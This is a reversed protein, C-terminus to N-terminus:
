KVIVKTNEVSGNAYKVQAVYVGAALSSVNISSSTSKAVVKGTMDALVVGTIQNKASFNVVSTAPNPYVQLNSKAVVDSVALSGQFKMIGTSGGPGDSFQGCWGTTGNLFEVKGRQEGADIEIWNLGGDTSYSSGMPAASNIGTSVYTNPTGPVYAIDGYYWPGNPTIDTWSEGGNTTEYLVAFGNDNTILLGNTASSFAFSASSGETIVGGFDMAPSIHATWTNGRDTSRLIRGTSTGLWINDGHVEKVGVYTFEDGNQPAPATSIVTWTNGGDTTKYMEFKNAVPDGGAYGNNEDWFYIHNAFSASNNFIAGSYKTWNDGGDTTKWIGNSSAGGSSPATIIFATTSSFAYIDSFLAAAPMEEATKAVWSTGGNSTVAFDKPYTGAGTGDYATAWVVNENVINIEDIGWSPSFNTAQPQWSLQASALVGTLAIALFYFKKM